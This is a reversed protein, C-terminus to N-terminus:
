RRGPYIGSPLNMGGPFRQNVSAHRRNETRQDCSDGGMVGGVVAGRLVAGLVAGIVEGASPGRSITEPNGGAPYNVVQPQPRPSIPPAPDVAVPATTVPTPEPTTVTAPAEAVVPAPTATPAKRHTRVRTSPAPAKPAPATREIASVVQLGQNTGGSGVAIGDSSSALELDKKLDGNVATKKTSCAALALTACGILLYAKRM